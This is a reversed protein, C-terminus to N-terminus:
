PITLVRAREPYEDELSPVVPAAYEAVLRWSLRSQLRPLVGTTRDAFLIRTGQQVAHALFGEVAGALHPEYVIDAILIVDCRANAASGAGPENLLDDTTVSLQVDNSAANMQMAVAALRDIDVGLAGAAGAQLAAIAAIGSGAGMDLVRARAVLEPHDLLHRALAQGGPWAFAWFPRAALPGRGAHQEADQWIDRANRALHLRVEPVLAAAGIACNDRVFARDAAAQDGAQEQARELM